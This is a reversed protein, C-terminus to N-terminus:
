QAHDRFQRDQHRRHRQTGEIVSAANGSVTVGDEPNPRVIVSVAPEVVEPLLQPEIDPFTISAPQTPFGSTVEGTADSQGILVPTGGGGDVGGGAAPAGGAATAAAVQSPDAGAAIAKQLAAADQEAGAPTTAPPAATAPTGASAEALIESTLAFKSDRGVDLFRGGDLQVQIIGDAGTEIVERAFVKDGVKAARAVGDVGIVRVNGVVVTITGAATSGTAPTAM